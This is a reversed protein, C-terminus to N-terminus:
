EFAMAREAYACLFEDFVDPHMAALERLFQWQAITHKRVTELKAPNKTAGILHYGYDHVIRSKDTSNCQDKFWDPILDLVDFATVGTDIEFAM